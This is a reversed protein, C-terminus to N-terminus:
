FTGALAIFERIKDPNKKGPAEEVGSSIDVTKAGTMHTAKELNAAKLGGALMWPKSVTLGKLLSWDFSVANGGPLANVSDSPKADFLLWDAVAAYAPIKELDKTVGIKIAKMVLLGTQQKIQVIREVSEEGHLQIMNLPVLKLVKRLDEDSPDVFLGVTRIPKPVLAVLPAAQEPTVARPSKPYFVLGVFKAGADIAAQM